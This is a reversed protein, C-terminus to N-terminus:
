RKLHTPLCLTFRCGQGVVSHVQLDGQMALALKRAIYLGLGTGGSDRRGLREFKEFILEQHELSVGSGQDEVSVRTELLGVDLTVYIDTGVDSYRVANTLLNILIQLVRRHEGVVFASESPYPAFIRINKKEAQVALLSVAARALDGLDIIDSAVSFDSREINQVDVLDDVLGLLHQGAQAIDSAYRVYDARMPGHGEKAIASATAIIRNIPGRLAEDIRNNFRSIHASEIPAHPYAPGGINMMPTAEAYGRYGCFGGRADFIPKASLIFEHEAGEGCALSAVQGCFSMNRQLALDMPAIGDDGVRFDLVDKLRQGAWDVVGSPAVAGLRLAILRLEGDTEWSWGRPSPPLIPEGNRHQHMMAACTWNRIAIDAGAKRPFIVAWGHITQGDDGFIVSQSLCRQGTLSASILQALKPLALQQGLDAGALRQLRLLPADAVELAGQSDVSARVIPITM